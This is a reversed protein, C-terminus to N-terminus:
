TIPEGDLRTFGDLAADFPEPEWPRDGPGTMPTPGPQSRIDDMRWAGDVWVLDLSVTVWETQPMAVDAASLVTVTWVAVTARGEGFAEVRWALPHVIWWVRGPSEALQERAAHIEAVNEAALRGAADPSAIEGVAAAIEDDSLYLWRQPAAAYVVAAAAAGREDRGQPTAAGRSAGHEEGGPGPVTAISHDVPREATPGDSATMGAVLAAGPVVAACIVLGLARVGPRRRTRSSM